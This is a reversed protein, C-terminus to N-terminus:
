ATKVCDALTAPGAKLTLMEPTLSVPVVIAIQQCSLITSSTKIYATAPSKYVQSCLTALLRHSASCTAHLNQTLHGQPLLHSPVNPNTLTELGCTSGVMDLFCAPASILNTHFSSGSLSRSCITLENVLTLQEIKRGLMHLCGHAGLVAFYRTKSPMYFITTISMLM